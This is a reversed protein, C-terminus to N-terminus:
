EAEHRAVLLPSSNGGAVGSKLELGAVHVELARAILPEHDRACPSLVFARSRDVVDAIKAEQQRGHVPLHGTTAPRVLKPDPDPVLRRTNHHIVVLHTGRVARPGRCHDRTPTDHNVRLDAAGRSSVNRRANSTMHSNSAAM